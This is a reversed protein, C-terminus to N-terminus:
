KKKIEVMWERNGVRHKGSVSIVRVRWSDCYYITIYIICVYIYVCMPFLSKEKRMPLDWLADSDTFSIDRTNYEVEICYIYITPWCLITRTKRGRRTIVHRTASISPSIFYFFFFYLSLFIVHTYTTYVVVLNWRHHVCMCIYLTNNVIIKLKHM